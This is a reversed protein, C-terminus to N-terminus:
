DTHPKVPEIASAWNVIFSSLFWAGVALAIIYLGTPILSRPVANLIFPDLIIDVKVDPPNSMRTKNLSYFDAAAQIRLFLLSASTEAPDTAKRADVIPKSDPISESFSALATILEPTEFVHSISHAELWFSTPQTAAWCVRVEYRQGPTLESLLYWSDLGRPSADSRFAVPINTRLVHASPSLSTLRLDQLGPRVNPVAIASPAVFVTKEVNALAAPLLVVFTTLLALLPRTIAPLM